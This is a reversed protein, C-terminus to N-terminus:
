LWFDFGGTENVTSPVFTVLGVLIASQKLLRKQLIPLDSASLM